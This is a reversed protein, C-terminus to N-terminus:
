RRIPMQGPVSRLLAALKHALRRPVYRLAGNREAFAARREAALRAERERRLEIRLLDQRSPLNYRVPNNAFGLLRTALQVADYVTQVGLEATDLHLEYGDFGPPQDRLRFPKAAPPEPAASDFWALLDPRDTLSNRIAQRAEARTQPEGPPIAALFHLTAAKRDLVLQDDNPFLLDKAYQFCDAVHVPPLRLAPVTPHPHYGAETHLRLFEDTIRNTGNVQLFSVGNSHGSLGAVNMPVGVSLFTGALYAFAFGTYVDPYLNPFLRGTRERHREILRRHIVANYIMPLMDAGVEYRAVAAIRERGDCPKVWRDLPLRLLNADAPVAMDPWTYVARHWHVALPSGHRRILTDLERLAFPMLGDDDGLVTVYEGSAAAVAREWNASMALPQDSRLYRVRPSKCEDIVQRTAATSCNDAVLIEYDAFDQELCTRLCHRLTGARERTPIVVSFRPSDM